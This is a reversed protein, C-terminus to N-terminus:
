QIVVLQPITARHYNYNIVNDIETNIVLGTSGANVSITVPNVTNTHYLLYRAKEIFTFPLNLAYIKNAIAEHTDTTAVSISYNVGNITIVVNGNGTPTNTVVLLFASNNKKVGANEIAIKDGVQLNAVNNVSIINLGTTGSCTVAQSLVKPVSLRTYFTAEDVKTNITSLLGDNIVESLTGDTILDNIVNTVRENANTDFNNLADTANQNFVNITNTMSQEFTTKSNNLSTQFDTLAQNASNQYNTKATDIAQQFTLLDANTDAKYANIVTDLDAIFETKATNLSNEFVTKSATLTDIYAQNDNILQARVDSNETMFQEQAVRMEDVVATAEIAIQEVGNVLEVCEDVKKATLASLELATKTEGEFISQLIGSPYSFNIKEIAM